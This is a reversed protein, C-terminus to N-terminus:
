TITLARAKMKKAEEQKLTDRVITTGHDRDHEEMLAYFQERANPYLKARARADEHMQNLRQSTRVSNASHKEFMMYAISSHVFYGIFIVVVCLGAIKGTDKNREYYYPDPRFGFARARGEFTREEYQSYDPQNRGVGEQPLGLDYMKRGEAKGLVAYANNVAVFRAHVKANNQTMDNHKDPHLERTKKIYADRIEQQTANKAVGLIDYYNESAKHSSSIHRCCSISRKM